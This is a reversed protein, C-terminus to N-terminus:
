GFRELNTLNIKGRFYVDYLAIWDKMKLPNKMGCDKFLEDFEFTMSM